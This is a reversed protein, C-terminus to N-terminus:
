EVQMVSGSGSINTSVAPSGKYRVKGSGSIRARLQEAVALECNGSGSVEVDATRTALGYARIKGSGSIDMEYREADGSLTIRASGSTRSELNYVGTVTMDINGSGSAHLRLDDVQWPTLGRLTNAGSLSVERLDPTTLYIRVPQRAKVRNRTYEIELKNNRVQTSLEALINAQGELRIDQSPGQSLYIEFDGGATVADFHAVPRTQTIPDGEGRLVAEDCATFLIAPALLLCAALFKKFSHLKM